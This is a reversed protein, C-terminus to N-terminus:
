FSRELATKLMNAITDPTSIGATNASQKNTRTVDDLGDTQQNPRSLRETTASLYHLQSIHMLWPAQWDIDAFSSDLVGAIMPVHDTCSDIDLKTPLDSTPM